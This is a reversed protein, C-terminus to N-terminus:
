ANGTVQKGKAMACASASPCGSCSCGCGMKGKKKRLVSAWVTGVVMAVASVIIVYDIWTM